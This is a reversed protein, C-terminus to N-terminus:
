VPQSVKGYKEEAITREFSLLMEKNQNLAELAPKKSENLELPQEDGFCTSSLIFVLAICYHTTKM